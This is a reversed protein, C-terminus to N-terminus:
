GPPAQNLARYWSVYDKVGQKISISPRFGLQSVAKGIEAVSDRVEGARAPSYNIPVETGVAEIVHQALQNITTAMGTGINFMGHASNDYALLNAEVLDRVDVFDRTQEGDGYIHLPEDKLAQEVFIPLVNGYPNFRQNSGYANFYRLCAVKLGYGASLVLCYNEASLKSIGYASVPAKPHAEDVPIYATEGFIASSSSYVMQPISLEHCAKLVNITGLANTVLDTDPHELSLVNGVQAALHFAVDAGTGARFVDQYERVDGRMVELKPGKPLNEDAGSSYNDLIVVSYGRGLLSRVLNSGIFGAGGTVLAHVDQSKM